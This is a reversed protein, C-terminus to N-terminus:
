TKFRFRRVRSRETDEHPHASRARWLEHISELGRNSFFSIQGGVIGFALSVRESSRLKKMYALFAGLVAVVAGIELVQILSQMSEGPFLEGTFTYYTANIFVGLSGGFVFSYVAFEITDSLSVEKRERLKIGLGLM